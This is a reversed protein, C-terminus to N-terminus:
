GGHPPRPNFDTAHPCASMSGAGDGETLLAHISIWVDPHYSMRITTVRRSSPTSQFKGHDEVTITMDTVRRSSPTSQFEQVTAQALDASYDGETLLAHISIAIDGNLQDM